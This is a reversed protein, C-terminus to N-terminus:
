IIFMADGFSFFRYRNAVAQEYAKLVQDRGAFASVLMLLTSRPLHFNTVLADVVKFEYGPYIFIDTWGKSATLQGQESAIAELTRTVTTGVAIVRKGEAKKQNILGATEQSLEYYEAHMQHEEINDVKVPRFTGLGVHLTLYSREIGKEELKELLEPTFHLGATPAAVSGRERAYVTQYRGPDAPKQHIYPPLPLEGLEDIIEDFNGEYSFEMLRGGYETYDLAKGVLKGEGFSIEVGQKVRRGPKVLVEWIDKEKENLLLVEIEIGSSLKKGMLRAPIVKSNNLVLLDGPALYDIIDKFKREEIKGSERRLIMLRSEDRVKAPNQAILEEPLHYTFDDVKM